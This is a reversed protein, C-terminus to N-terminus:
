VFLFFREQILFELFAVGPFKSIAQELLFVATLHVGKKNDPFESVAKNSHIFNKFAAKLEPNPPANLLM